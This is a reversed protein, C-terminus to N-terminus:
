SIPQTAIGPLAPLVIKKLDERFVALDNLFRERYPAEIGKQAFDQYYEIGSQLNDIFESLYKQTQASLERSFKQIEDRLYDVYIKLERIFIHPFDACIPLSARGYIHDVMGRLTAINSFYVINPGPCVATKANGDIGNRITAGGGLDHCICSKGLIDERLAALTETSGAEEQLSALKREQYTRSAQCLPIDSFEGDLALLGKTCPSGPRGKRIRQKRAEESASNELSWFPIGIPSHDSLRVDQETAGILKELHPDDVNTVEPVLLFPTGWGTGDVDYYTMLLQQEGATSIGGQVTIRVEPPVDAPKRGSSRLNSLYIQFLTEILEQKRRKFEELIPGMLYGKTAFAHGGCNLGSEIRYESVWIGRKALYKGQVVASRYDSVKLVVKKKLVGSEDPYFDDFVPLYSYLSSNMGASFVISSHLTSEAFGKLATMADSHEKPLMRGDQYRNRDLKTMINVDISGSVVHRRLIDQMRSQEERDSTSLMDHYRKRLPSDPLMEFYHTIESGPEYPSTRVQEIQQRVLRDVLNLYATIRRSRTNEDSATIERYPEGARESHVKRMQEILVDDVLSIVSSIGYKAVRLATDVTFGTGMVPIHFTHPQSTILDIM